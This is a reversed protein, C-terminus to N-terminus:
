ADEDDIVFLMDLDHEYEDVIAFWDTATGFSRGTLENLVSPLVRSLTAWRSTGAHGNKAPLYTDGTDRGPKPAAPMDSKLTDVLEELIHERYRECDGFHGLAEMAKAAMTYSKSRDVIRLLPRVLSDDAVKGAADIAALARRQRDLDEYPKLYRKLYRAGDEHGLIGLTEIAPLRVADDRDRTLSGVEKVLQEQVEDGDPVGEAERFLAITARLDARLKKTADERRHTEMREEHEDVRDELPEDDAATPAAALCAGLLLAAVLGTTLIPGRRRAMSIGKGTGRDAARRAWALRRQAAPIPIPILSGEVRTAASGQGAM